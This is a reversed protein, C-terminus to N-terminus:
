FLGPQNNLIFNRLEDKDSKHVFSDVVLDYNEQDVTQDYLDKAMALRNDDFSFVSILDIVQDTTFCENRTVFRARALRDDKFSESKIRAKMDDVQAQAVAETCVVKVIDTPSGGILIGKNTLDCSGLLLLGSFFFLYKM